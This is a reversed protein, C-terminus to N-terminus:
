SRLAGPLVLDKAARDMHRALNRAYAQRHPDDRLRTSLWNGRGYLTSYAALFPMYIFGTEIAAPDCLKLMVNRYRECLIRDILVKLEPNQLQNLLLLHQLTILPNGVYAECWDIFQCHGGGALINSLSMDGHVVCEPLDLVDVCNCVDDFITKLERLRDTAIRPVKTSTQLTMAEELYEFLAASQASLADIGQDFAGAELLNLEKGETRLQLEAMSEVADELFRFLAFSDSPLCPLGTAEGSMIWANWEPKSDIFAPLYDGCLRSLLATVSLEHANPEGTAKLWYDWSDHTRFRVLAFGNGANWQEIDRKASISRGTATEVWSAAEDIWGVRYFPSKARGDLLSGIVSREAISLESGPLRSLPIMTLHSIAKDPFLEAVVCPATSMEGALVDLILARVKWTNQIANRLQPTARTWQPIAIRPLRYGDDAVDVLLSPSDRQVIVARYELM